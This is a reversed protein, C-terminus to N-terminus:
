ETRLSKVPNAVAAKIAQFSVTALAVLLTCLGAILFIDWGINIRFAFDELWKEMAWWAVPFAILAAILTLRVFEKSLLVVLSHVSAGLVKRVGIEKTRREAIYACLGFLGLCAIFISLSAFISFLSGVRQESRYQADFAADLFNYDFPEGSVFSKWKSEVLSITNSVDGPKIRALIHSVGMSYGTSTTHFLAFASIPTHMSQVNFNKIIGIVQYRENNGGPYDLWKGIPDKWGIQKVAEENLIVSLSDSFDKSFNRGQLLKIQLTPIFDNDVMYSALGVESATKENGEPQPQYSDGFLFGAPMSTTISASIVGPLQSVTQRFSEESEGLRNSNSIVLINERSFGINSTRFFNLQRFVVITGIIMITSITFQFVVLGNRILLSGKGSKFLNNAKLVSVPNFSTLYFAPYSGALLAVLIALAITFIWTKATFANAVDMPEGTITSFPKALLLAILIALATSIVSYLLAEVLFQRILQQRSSGSVKRVGVEKARKASRATSLNMFNVCALVVIFIAICGFIYVYKINSIHHLNPMSIGASHLHIRTLPLLHLDWRGGKKLFEDFPKGIRKFATAAEVRVMAPFKAELARIGAEDNKVNPKLKVYCIMQRWIWSWTFRKIVPYDAVPTLFDFQLSSQSPINKLVATIIFPKKGEGMLLTKGVADEKSFYKEAMDKTIVVSGPKMLATAADGHLLKFDFLQLFNSDVALVNKETFFKEANGNSEYRVVVDNPSYFRTFSEIEPFNNALAAGVPPAINGARFEGNFNGEITVQYIRDADKHFRDFSLENQIFMVILLACAIGISLGAINIFSSVKNRVMNRLATKFYNRLMFSM